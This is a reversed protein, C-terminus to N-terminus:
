RCNKLGAVNTEKEKIEKLTMKRIYKNDGIEGPDTAIFTISEESYKIVLIFRQSDLEINITEIKEETSIPTSM